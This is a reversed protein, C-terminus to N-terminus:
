TMSQGLTHWLREEVRGRSQSGTSGTGSPDPKAGKLAMRCVRKRNERGRLNREIGNGAMLVRWRIIRCDKHIRQIQFGLKFWGAEM